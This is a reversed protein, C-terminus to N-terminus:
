RYDPTTSMVREIATALIKVGKEIKENPAYSFNIRM